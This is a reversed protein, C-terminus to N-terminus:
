PSGHPATNSALKALRLTYNHDAVIQPDEGLVDVLQTRLALRRDDTLATRHVEGYLPHALRTPWSGGPAIVVLGRAEAAEIAPSGTIQTLASLPLSEAEALIDILLDLAHDTHRLLMSEVATRLHEPVPGDDDEADVLTRLFLPNGGTRQWLSEAGSADGGRSSMFAVTDALTFAPLDIRQVHDLALVDTIAPRLPEGTRITLLLRAGSDTALQHILFLSMDDALHADDLVLLFPRDTSAFTRVLISLRRLPDTVDPNAHHQFLSFPVDIDAPDAHAWFTSLHAPAHDFVERALRTKGIGPSGTLVIVPREPHTLLRRVRHLEADRGVFLSPSTM